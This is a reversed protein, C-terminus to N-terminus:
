KKVIRIEDLKYTRYNVDANSTNLPTFIIRFYGLNRVDFNGKIDSKFKSFDFEMTNWGSKLNLPDATTAGISMEIANNDPTFSWTKAEANYTKSGVEVRFHVKDNFFALDDDAVFFKLQLKLDDYDYCAPMAYDLGPWM